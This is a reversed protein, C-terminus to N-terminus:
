AAPEHMAVSLYDKYRPLFVVNKLEYTIQFYKNYNQVRNVKANERFVLM